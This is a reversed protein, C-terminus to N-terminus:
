LRRIWRRHHLHELEITHYFKARSSGRIPRTIALTANYQVPEIKSSFFVKSHQDYCPMEMAWSTTKHLVQLYKAFNFM